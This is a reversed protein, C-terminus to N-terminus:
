PGIAAALAGALLSVIIAGVNLPSFIWIWDSEYADPATLFVFALFAGFSLVVAALYVVAVGSSIDPHFILLGAIPGLLVVLIQSADIAWVTTKAIQDPDHHVPLGTANVSDDWQRYTAAFRHEVAIAGVPGLLLVLANALFPAAVDFRTIGALAPAVDFYM